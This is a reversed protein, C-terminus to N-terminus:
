FRKGFDTTATAADREDERGSAPAGVVIGVGIDRYGRDLINQRHGRSHMWARMLSEPTAFEGTGWAINEGVSLGRAGSLYGASRVRKALDPGGARKHEFYHRSVMDRSQYRASKTLSGSLHLKRLGRKTREVNLLCLISREASATSSESPLM